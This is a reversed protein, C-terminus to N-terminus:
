RALALGTLMLVGALVLLAGLCGSKRARTRRKPKPIIEEGESPDSPEDYLGVSPEEAAPRHSKRPPGALRERLREAAVPDLPERRDTDDLIAQLHVESVVALILFAQFEGRSEGRCVTSVRIAETVARRATNFAADVPFCARFLKVVPALEDAD